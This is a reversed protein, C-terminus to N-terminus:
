GDETEDWRWIRFPIPSLILEGQKQAKQSASWEQIGKLKESFNKIKKHSFLYWIYLFKWTIFPERSFFERLLIKM